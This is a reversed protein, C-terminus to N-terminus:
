SGFRQLTVTCYPGLMATVQVLLSLVAASIAELCPNILACLVITVPSYVVGSAWFASGNINAGCEIKPSIGM